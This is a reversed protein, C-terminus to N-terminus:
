VQSIFTFTRVAIFDRDWDKVDYEDAKEEEAKQHYKLYEAVNAMTEGRVNPVNMSVTGEDAEMETVFDNVSSYSRHSSHIDIFPTRKIFYM